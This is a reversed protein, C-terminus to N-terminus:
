AVRERQPARHGIAGLPECKWASVSLGSKAEGDKGTWSDLRLKGEIYVEDGKHLRPALREADAEWVTVKVWTMAAGDGAARNELVGISFALLAKGTSTYRIEPDGGIRGELATQIGNM